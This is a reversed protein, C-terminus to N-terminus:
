EEAASPVRDFAPFTERLATYLRRYIPYRQAVGEELSAEPHIVHEIDPPRCLQAPDGGDAALRGLRAAGFAPGIEADRAYHLSRGLVSALLSGWLASRAGGGVVTLDGIVTGAAELAAKGDALAFAVGELVSWGLDARSHAHELGFFVGRAHPDNHPTREGSLYPLFIPASADPARGAVEELLASESPAGTLAAVWALCSAASLIVSMQHWRDPLAHCFAHVAGDPNPAFESGAVFLVGSTGLALFAQGAQVVGMGVAGAAQDGAGGAIVVGSGMGWRAAWEPRLEGTAASGEQLSPMAREDLGTAGLVDASWARAAVDLWLTGSADSMEGVYEGSLRLRLYDKPLLVRRVRQFVDPEHEAVWILKPATFGPMVLNGTIAQVRPLRRELERCAAGSRGDNWLIAPRLVRDRDDLLTAGHMQGSLGIGRVRALERPFRAALDDLAHGAATWWDEPDQESWLPRPRQVDLPATSQGVLREDADVLVVKVASTGLDIGVYV